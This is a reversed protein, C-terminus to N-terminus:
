VGRRARADNFLNKRKQVLNKFNTEGRGRLSEATENLSEASDISETLLIRTRIMCYVVQSTDDREEVKRAETDQKNM